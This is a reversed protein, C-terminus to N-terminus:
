VPYRAEIEAEAALWDALAGDGSFGREISRFYAAEAIYKQREGPALPPLEVAPGSGGRGAKSNRVEAASSVRSTKRTLIAAPANPM